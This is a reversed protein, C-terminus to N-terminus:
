LISLLYYISTLNRAYTTTYCVFGLMVYNHECVWTIQNTAARTQHTTVGRCVAYYYVIVDSDAYLVFCPYTRSYHHFIPM